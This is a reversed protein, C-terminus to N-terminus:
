GLVGRDVLYGIPDLFNIQPILPFFGILLIFGVLSNGVEIVGVGRFPTVM